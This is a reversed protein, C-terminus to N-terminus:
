TDGTSARTTASRATAKQPVSPVSAAGTAACRAVAASGSVVVRVALQSAAIERGADRYSVVVSLAIRRRGAVNGATTMGAACSALRAASSTRSTPPHPLCRPTPLSQPSHQQQQQAPDEQQQQQQQQGGAPTTAHPKAFTAPPPGATEQLCAASAQAAPGPHM